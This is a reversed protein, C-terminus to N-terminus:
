PTIRSVADEVMERLENYKAELQHLANQTAALGQEKGSNFASAVQDEIDGRIEEGERPAFLLACVAGISAGLFLFLMTQMRRKREAIQRSEESYYIRESM